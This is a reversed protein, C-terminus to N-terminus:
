KKEDKKAVNGKGNTKEYEAIVDNTLDVPDKLYLLGATNTEYVAELEKQKAMTEVMKAVNIAIGQTAKQEKRKIESQFNLEANRLTMFREQFDQQKKLRASESLLAAQSKWEQNLKDLEEKEKQFEGEKGKIEKELEARAKKGEGVNLIVAQMDIVGYKATPKAQVQGTVALLSTTFGFLGTLFLSLWTTPFRKMM